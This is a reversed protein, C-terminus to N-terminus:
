CDAEKTRVARLNITESKLHKPECECLRFSLCVIFSDIFAMHVFDQETLEAPIVVFGESNVRRGVYNFCRGIIKMCASKRLIDASALLYRM